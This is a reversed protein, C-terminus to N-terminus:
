PIIVKSFLKNLSSITFILYKQWASVFIGLQECSGKRGLTHATKGNKEVCCKLHCSDKQHQCQFAMEGQARNASQLNFVQLKVLYKM